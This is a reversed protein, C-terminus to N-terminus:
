FRGQEVVECQAAEETRPIGARVNDLSQTWCDEYVSCYCIKMSVRESNRWLHTAAEGPEVQIAAVIEGPMMVNGTIMAMSFRPMGGELMDGYVDAWSGAATGDRFLQVSRILAPGIGKNAVNIGFGESGYSSWSELIPLVAARSELRMLYAEYLSVGLASISIIGAAIATIMSANPFRRELREHPDVM